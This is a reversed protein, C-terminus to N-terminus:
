ATRACCGVFEDLARTSHGITYAVMGRCESSLAGTSRSRRGPM